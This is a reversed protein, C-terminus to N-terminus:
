RALSTQPGEFDSDFFQDDPVLGGNWAIRLNIGVRSVWARSRRLADLERKFSLAVAALAVPEWEIEPHCQAFRATEELVEPDALRHAPDGNAPGAANPQRIRQLTSFPWLSRKTGTPSRANRQISFYRASTCGVAQQGRHVFRGQEDVGLSPADGRPTEAGLHAADDAGGAGALGATTVHQAM